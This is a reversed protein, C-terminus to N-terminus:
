PGRFRPWNQAAACVVPNALTDLALALGAIAVPLLAGFGLCWAGSDKLAVFPDFRTAQLAPPLSFGIGVLWAIGVAFVLVRVDTHLSVPAGNFVVASMLAPAMRGFWHLVLLAAVTGLTALLVGELALQRLLARRTAGLALRIALERRRDLGRALLLNALNAAGILLVLLTGFGALSNVQILSRRHEYAFHRDASGYGARLLAVGAFDSNNSADPPTRLPSYKVPHLTRTTEQMIPALSGASAAPSIGDQLRGFVSLPPSRFFLEEACYTVLLDPQHSGMGMFGPPAVGVIEFVHFM